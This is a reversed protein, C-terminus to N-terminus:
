GKARLGIVARYIEVARRGVADWSLERDFQQALRAREAELDRGAVQILARACDAADGPKWRAGAPGAITRFTPIDTVVPIAGCACAEMLSYGSGEHHSGVLFVDAASFFAPLRDHPVEGALRVRGRLAASSEVRARVQDLLETTAFVMTLVADPLQPLAREFGDLVTLPNKNANLRGVWLVAPRGDIGTQARAEAKPLPRFSTSAPMVCHVPQEPGVVGAARWADAHEPVAFLFADVAGRLMRGAARLAPARGIAGGDSHSQVVLSVSAPLRSRLHWTRVPFIIGNVHVLDPDFAAAASALARDDECFVYEVGNRTRTGSTPFRQVVRVHMADAQGSRTSPAARIADSWGTLTFYRDLLADPSEIAPDAVFNVQVVRMTM